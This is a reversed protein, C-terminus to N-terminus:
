GGTSRGSQNQGGTRSPFSGDPPRQGSGTDGALGGLGPMMTNTNADSTTIPVLIEDGTNLGTLIQAYTDNVLGITVEVRSYGTTDSVISKGANASNRGGSPSNSGSASTGANGAPGASSNTVQSTSTDSTGSSGSASASRALVYRKGGSSQLAAIPVLVANDAQLIVVECSANMAPLLSDPNEITITVDYTTVSNSSTGLSSIRSVKGTYSKNNFADVTISAVQGLKINAIDLEDVPITMIYQKEPYLTYLIDGDKVSQEASVAVSSIIGPQTAQVTPKKLLARATKLDSWVAEREAMLDSVSSNIITGDLKFLSRGAYVYKNEYVYVSQISGTAAIIPLPKNVALRGTGAIKNKSTKITVKRGATYTDKDIVAVLQGSDTVDTILGSKTASGIVVKVKDGIALTVGDVPTFTVKMQGDTSIVCLQGYTDMVEAVLDDEDAKLLKIRGKVPATVYTSGTISQQSTLQSNLSALSTELQSIHDRISQLDYTLIVDGSAVTDGAAVQIDAVMAAAAARISLDAGPDITGTTQVSVTLTGTRTSYTQYKQTSETSQQGSQTLYYWLGGGAALAIILVVILVTWKKRPNKM